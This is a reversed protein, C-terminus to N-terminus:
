GKLTSQALIIEALEMTKVGSAFSSMPTKTRDRCCDVFDQALLTVGTLTHFDASGACEAASYYEGKTDGDKYLYGGTEHEVEACIEPAHMEIDFIRRGSSWSNILYGMAGNDFHLTASIFNKDFSGVSNMHSEVKVVEGGCAWRLTDIAHVTDDMMHDRAELYDGLMCKYFRVMAHVIPGRRLCEERLRMVVPTTRRQFSVTAVCDNRRALEDLLQAQHLSLGMPKEIYLNVGNRLCWIWLDIMLHPQGIVAVGDPKEKKIMERYAYVTDGYRHEEAVGYQDAAAKLAVPDIDCIAAIEVDPLGAFAPYHVLTARSGAGVFAMRFKDAM